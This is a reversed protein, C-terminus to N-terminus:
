KGEFLSVQEASGVEVVVEGWAPHERERHVPCCCPGYIAGDVVHAPSQYAGCGCPGSANQMVLCEPM